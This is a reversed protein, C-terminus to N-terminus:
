KYDIKFKIASYDSLILSMIKNKKLKQLNFKHGM